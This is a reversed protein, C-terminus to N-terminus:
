RKEGNSFTTSTPPPLPARMAAIRLCADRPTPTVKSRGGDASRAPVQTRLGERAPVVGARDVDELVHPLGDPRVTAHQDHFRHDVGVGGAAKV